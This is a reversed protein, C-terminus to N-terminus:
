NVVQSQFTPTPLNPALIVSQMSWQLSYSGGPTQVQVIICHLVPVRKSLQGTISKSTVQTAKVCLSFSHIVKRFGQSKSRILVHPPKALFAYKNGPFELFVFHSLRCFDCLSKSTATVDLLILFQTQKINNSEKWFAM